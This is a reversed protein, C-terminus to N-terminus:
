VPEDPADKLSAELEAVRTALADREAAVAALADLAENRQKVLYLMIREHM